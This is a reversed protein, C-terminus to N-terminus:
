NQPVQQGYEIRKIINHEHDYVTKLRGFSDYDYYTYRNLADCEAVPGVLPQYVTHVLHADVPAIRLEDLVLNGTLTLRSGGPVVASYAIWGSAASISSLTVTNGSADKLSPTGSKALFTVRYDKGAPLAASQVSALSSGLLLAQSGNWGNPSLVNNASNARIISINGAEDTQSGTATGQPLLVEYNEFGCYAIEDHHANVAKVHPQDLWQPQMVASVKNRSTVECPRNLLDFGTIENQLIYGPSSYFTGGSVVSGTFTSYSAPNAQKLAYTRSPLVIDDAVNYTYTNLTASIVKETGGHEAKTLVSEIVPSILHQQSMHVLTNSMADATTGIAYDMPRKYYHKLTRYALDAADKYVDTRSSLQYSDADYVFSTSTTSKGGDPSYSTHDTGSLYFWAAHLIYRDVNYMTGTGDKKHIKAICGYVTALDPQATYYYRTNELLRDDATFTQSQWVLGLQHENLDCTYAYAQVGNIPYAYPMISPNVEYWNITYGNPRSASTAVDSEFTEVQQYYVPASLVVPAQMESVSKRITAYCTNSGRTESFPFSENKFNLIIKGSSAPNRVPTGNSFTITNYNFHKYSTHGVGDETTITRIRLGPANAGDATNNEFTFTTKGGTPYTISTLMAAKTGAPDVSNTSGRTLLSSGSHYYGWKDQHEDGPEPLITNEYTFVYPKLETDVADVQTVKELRLRKNSIAPPYVPAAYSLKYSKVITGSANRLSVKELAYDGAADARETAAYDFTIKADRFRISSLRCSRFETGCLYSKTTYVGGISFNCTSNVQNNDSVIETKFKGSVTQYTLNELGENYNFLIESHDTLIIKTLFWGSVVEDIGDFDGLPRTDEGPDLLIMKSKTTERGAFVYRVGNEDTITFSQIYTTGPNNFEIKLKQYPVCYFQHDATNHVFKGSRGNFNFFYIDPEADMNGAFISEPDGGTGRTIASITSYHYYYGKGPTEDPLGRVMRTIMGGANLSWGLGVRSATEDVKHGGAHYSLSVPVTYGNQTAALLPVQIQPIGTSENVPIIGYKALGQLDPSLGPAYNGAPNWDQAIAHTCCTLLLLYLLIPKM